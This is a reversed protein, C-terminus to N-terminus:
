IYERNTYLGNRVDPVRLLKSDIVIDHCKNTSENAFVNFGVEDTAIHNGGYGAWGAFSADRIM